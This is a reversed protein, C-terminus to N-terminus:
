RQANRGNAQAPPGINQGVRGTASVAPDLDHGTEGAGLVFALRKGRFIIAIGRRTQVFKEGVIRDVRDDVGRRVMHMKLRGRRDCRRALM